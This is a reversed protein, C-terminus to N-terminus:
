SRWHQYDQRLTDLESKMVSIQQLDGHSKQFEQSLPEIRSVLKQREVVLSQAEASAHQLEGKVHESDKLDAEMKTIKELITKLQQERLREFTIAGFHIHLRELEQRAAALEQRLSTETLAFRHNVTALRQMEKRQAALKQEM